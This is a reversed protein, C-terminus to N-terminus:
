VVSKRDQHVVISTAAIMVLDSVGAGATHRLALGVTVCIVAADILRHLSYLLSESYSIGRTIPSM